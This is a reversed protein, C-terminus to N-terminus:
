TKNTSIKSLLLTNRGQGHTDGDISGHAVSSQFWYMWACSSSQINNNPTPPNGWGDPDNVQSVIFAIFFKFFISMYSIVLTFLYLYLKERLKIRTNCSAITWGTQRVWVVLQPSCLCLLTQAFPRWDWRCRWQLCVGGLHAKLHAPGNQM